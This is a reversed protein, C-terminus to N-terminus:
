PRSTRELENAERERRVLLLRSGMTRWAAESRLARQRVNELKTNRAEDGAEQARAECFEVTLAM